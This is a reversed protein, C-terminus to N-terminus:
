CTLDKQEYKGSVEAQQNALVGRLLEDAHLKPEVVTITDATVAAVLCLHIAKPVVLGSLAPWVLKAENSKTFITRLTLPPSATKALSSVLSRKAWKSDITKYYKCEGLKHVLM